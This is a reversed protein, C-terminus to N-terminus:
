TILAKLVYVVVFAVIVAGVVLAVTGLLRRFRRPPGPSPPPYFEEHTPHNPDMAGYAM